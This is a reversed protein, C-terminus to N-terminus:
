VNIGERDLGIGNGYLLQETVVSPLRQLLEARTSAGQQLIEVVSDNLRQFETPTIERETVVIIPVLGGVPSARLAEIVQIGDQKALMLDLLVLSPQHQMLGDLAEDGDVAEIIDWHTGELTQRFVNRLEMDDAVLLLREETPTQADNATASYRKLLEILREREIPKLLYNAAGLMFARDKDDVITLMIVPINTLEPDSKLETLVSWGDVGPMLVDLIIIDPRLDRALGLGEDGRSATEVMFGETNLYRALVDCVAPDDDIVLVLSGVWQELSIDPTAKSLYHEAASGSSNINMQAQQSIPLHVTFTTGVGYESVLSIDGGMLQCLRRSLALGLGTGGYKRTTSTDAQTFMQFLNQVQEPTMGIGTDTVHFYLHEQEDAQERRIKLTVAGQHTFKAANSLLNFLVQRVKTEDTHIVDVNDDCRLVLTNGNSELLPQVMAIVDEVLSVVNFTEPDLEMKGAEIKSIDLIDNILALLHKGARRINDVDNLAIQAGQMTQHRLLDSYAIIATLPTRLEHSMNALFESKARNAQEAVIRAQESAERQAKLQAIMQNFSTALTGLEDQSNVELPTDLDGRAVTKTGDVLAAIPRTIRVSFVAAGALALFFFAAMAFITSSMTAATGQQIAAVVTSSQGTVEDIPAVLSLRWDLDALEATAIFMPKNDIAITQIGGAGLQVISRLEPDSLDLGIPQTRDEPVPIDDFGTLAKIAVPPGAILRGTGDTLFAYSNPTLRLQNLHELLQQLTVDLCISGGFGSSRYVPSCTTIMFGNGAADLYLPSWITERGPNAEPGSLAFWPETTLKVDPPVNGNLTGMPYYRSVDSASLYYIAVAQDTQELLIPALADLPLSERVAIQVEPIELPAFNPIYVDSRRMPNTDFFAGGADQELSSLPEDLDASDDIQLRTELYEVATRGAMAPQHLYSSTLNAERQILAQLSDRGQMQLGAISQEKANQQTQRFGYTVLLTLALALIALFAFTAVILKTRLSHWPLQM